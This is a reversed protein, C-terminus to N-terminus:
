LTSLKTLSGNKYRYQALETPSVVIMLDGYAIIDIADIDKQANLFIPNPQGSSIRSVDFIKIGDDCVLLTDGYLGLGFPQSMSVSSIMYPNSLNNIDIVQLENVGNWCSNNGDETRLTVFAYENNAVVPDCSTVHRYHSLLEPNTPNSIDYIYMGNTTGIFLTNEDRPFITEVNSNLQATETFVPKNKDEINFVKLSYQDVVYLFDGVVTFRALSGGQGSGGGDGYFADTGSSSDNSCSAMTLVALGLYLITYLKKM